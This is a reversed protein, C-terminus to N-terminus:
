PSSKRDIKRITVALQMMQEYSFHDMKVANCRKCCPVVNDIEYGKETDKRDLGRGTPELPRRCYHCPKGILEVFEEFTINWSKGRSRAAVKANSYRTTPLRRREKHVIPACDECHWHSFTAFPKEQQCRPCRKLVRSEGWKDRCKMSCFPRRAYSRHKPRSFKTKCVTCVAKKRRSDYFCPKSCFKLCKEPVRKKCTPCLRRTPM